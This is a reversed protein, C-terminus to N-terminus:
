LPSRSQSAELLARDLLDEISLHSSWRRLYDMDLQSGSVRLVGLVDNWQRTSVEEGMRYWNLKSLITDEATAVPLQLAGAGPVDIQVMVRRGFETQHFPDSSLPFFDFKYGSSYHILNSARGTRVAERLAQVDAYFEAGLTKALPAIQEPRLDVVLDVDMTARPVGHVSSALSGGILFPIGLSNLAEILRRLGAESESM